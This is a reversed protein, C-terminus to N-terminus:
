KHITYTNMTECDLSDLVIVQYKFRFEVTHMNVYTVYKLSMEVFSFTEKLSKSKKFNSLFYVQNTEACACNKFKNNVCAGGSIFLENTQRDVIADEIEEEGGVASVVDVDASASLTGEVDDVDERLM